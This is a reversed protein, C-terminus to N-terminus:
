ASKRQQSFRRSAEDFTLGTEWVAEFAIKLLRALSPHDVVIMTLISSGAVPDEIGFMVIQEDIIVLKLPLEEVFRADEGAEIYRRVGEAFRADDFATFEYMSRAVHTQVVELGEEHEHVPTAYPPKTFVLIENKIGAELEGFRENIARRDRLVEIYELPDTHEQGALYDPKLADIMSATDRELEDLQQRHQAVLSELAQDPPAASYKVARGPRTSALGKEVLSSLVDYVRQRPLGALRATEAATSSDRRLLALYARAEYSTLGLRQLRELHAGEVLQVKRLWPKHHLVGRGSM